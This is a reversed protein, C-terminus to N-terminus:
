CVKRASISVASNKYGTLKIGKEEAAPESKNEDIQKAGKKTSITAKKEEGQIVDTLEDDSTKKQFVDAKERRLFYPKIANRLNHATIAGEQKEYETANKDNGQNTFLFFTIPNQKEEYEYVYFLIKM